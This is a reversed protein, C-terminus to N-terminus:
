FPFTIKFSYYLIHPIGSFIAVNIQIRKTYFQTLPIWERQKLDFPYVHCKIKIFYKVKDM